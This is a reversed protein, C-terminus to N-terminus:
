VFSLFLCVDSSRVFSRFCVFMFQGLKADRVDGTFSPSLQPRRRHDNRIDYVHDDRM